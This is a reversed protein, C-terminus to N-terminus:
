LVSLSFVHSFTSTRLSVEASSAARSASAASKSASATSSVESAWPFHVLCDACFAPLFALNRELRRSVPRNVALLAELLVLWFSELEKKVKKNKRIRLLVV